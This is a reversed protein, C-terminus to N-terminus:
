NEKQYKSLDSWIMPGWSQHAMIVAGQLASSVDTAKKELIKKDSKLNKKNVGDFTIRNELAHYLVTSSFMDETGIPIDYLDVNIQFIPLTNELYPLETLFMTAGIKIRKNKYNCKMELDYDSTVQRSGEVKLKGIFKIKYHCSSLKSDDQKWGLTNVSIPNLLSGNIVPMLAKDYVFGTNKKGKKVAIWRTGKAKGVASVREHKKLRSVRKSKNMPKARVNVDRLVLYTKVSPSLQYAKFPDTAQGYCPAFMLMLTFSTVLKIVVKRLLFM